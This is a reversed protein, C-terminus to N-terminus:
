SLKISSDSDHSSDIDLDKMSKMKKLFKAM